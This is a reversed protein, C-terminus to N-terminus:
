WCRVFRSISPCGVIQSVFWRGNLQSFLRISVCIDLSMVLTWLWYCWPKVSKVLSLKVLKPSSYHASIQGTLQRLMKSGTVQSLGVAESSRWVDQIMSFIVEANSPGQDRWLNRPGARKYTPMCVTRLFFTGLSFHNLNRYIKQLSWKLKSVLILNRHLSCFDTKHLSPNKKKTETHINTTCNRHSPLSIAM